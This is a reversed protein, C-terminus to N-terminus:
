ESELKKLDTALREEISVGGGDVWKGGSYDFHSAGSVPSSYWVQKNVINRNILIQEENKLFLQIVEDNHEIDLIPKQTELQPLLSDQFSEWLKLFKTRSLSKRWFM